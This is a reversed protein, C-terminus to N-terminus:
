QGVGKFDQIFQRNLDEERVIREEPTGGQGSPRRYKESLRMYEDRQVRTREAEKKAKALQAENERKLRQIAENHERITAVHDKRSKDLAQAYQDIREYLQDIISDKEEITSNLETITIDKELADRHRQYGWWCGVLLVIDIFIAAALLPHKGCFDFIAKIIGLVWKFISTGIGFFLKIIGGM